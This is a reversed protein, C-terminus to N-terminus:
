LRVAAVLGFAALNNIIIAAVLFWTARTHIRRYNRDAPTVAFGIGSLVALALGVLASLLCLYIM